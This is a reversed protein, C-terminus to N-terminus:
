PQRQLQAMRLLDRRLDHCGEVAAVLIMVPLLSDAEASVRPRSLCSPDDQSPPWPSPDRASMRTLAPLSKLSIWLTCPASPGRPREGQLLGPRKGRDVM